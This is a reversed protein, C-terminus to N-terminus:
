EVSRFEDGDQERWQRSTRRGRSRLHKPPWTGKEHLELLAKYLERYVKTPALFLQREKLLELSKQRLEFDMKTLELAHASVREKLREKVDRTRDWIGVVSVIASGLIGALAGGLAGVIAAAASSDLKPLVLWVLAGFVLLYLLTFCVIIIILQKTNNMKSRTEVTAGMLVSALAKDM